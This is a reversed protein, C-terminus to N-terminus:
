SNQSRPYPSQLGSVHQEHQHRLAADLSAVDARKVPLTLWVYPLGPVLEMTMRKGRRDGFARVQSWAILRGVGYDDRFFLYEHDFALNIRPPDFRAAVLLVLGISAFIVSPTILTGRGTIQDFWMAFALVFLLLATVILAIRRTVQNRWIVNANPNDAVQNLFEQHLPPPKM